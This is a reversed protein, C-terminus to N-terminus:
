WSILHRSIRQRGGTIRLNGHEDYLAGNNDFSHSIEHGITAGTGGLNEAQDVQTLLVAAALYWLPSTIDNKLPDYSTNVLHGPM